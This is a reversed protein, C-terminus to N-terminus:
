EVALFRCGYSDYIDNPSILKGYELHKLVQTITKQPEEWANKFPSMSMKGSILVRTLQETM